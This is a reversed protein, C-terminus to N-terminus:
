LVKEPCQSQNLVFAEETHINKVYFVINHINDTLKIPWVIFM